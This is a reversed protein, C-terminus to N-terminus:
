QSHMRASDSHTICVCVTVPSAAICSALRKVKSILAQEGFCDGENLVNIKTNVKKQDVQTEQWVEVIGKKLIYFEDGPAGQQIIVQNKQYERVLLLNALKERDALSLYGAILWGGVLVLGDILCDTM